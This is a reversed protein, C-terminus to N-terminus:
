PPSYFSDPKECLLPATKEGLILVTGLSCTGSAGSFLVSLCLVFSIASFLPFNPPRLTASGLPHSKIAGYEVLPSGEGQTTKSDGRM